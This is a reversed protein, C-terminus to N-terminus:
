FESQGSLSDCPGVTELLNAALAAPNWVGSGACSSIAGALGSAAGPLPKVYAWESRVGNGDIDAIAEATFQAGGASAQVAYRYYVPGEPAWGMEGFGGAASAPWALKQPAPASAPVQAAQAVYDGHEAQYSEEATRIAALNTKAEGAKAKLQFRMFSPIAIAALIGVIAVVIMLEILTFASARRPLPAV